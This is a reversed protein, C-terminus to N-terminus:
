LRVALRLSLSSPSPFMCPHLSNSTVPNNVISGSSPQPFSSPTQEPALQLQSPESLQSNEQGCPPQECFQSLWDVQRAEQSPPPHEWVHAPAAFQVKVQSPPRQECLQVPDVPTQLAVHAGAM